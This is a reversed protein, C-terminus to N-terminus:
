LLVARYPPFSCSDALESVMSSARSRCAFMDPSRSIVQIFEPHINPSLSDIVPSRKIQSAADWEYLRQRAFQALLNDPICEAFKPLFRQDIEPFPDKWPGDLSRKLEVPSSRPRITLSDFSASLGFRQVIAANAKLGAYTWWECGTRTARLM